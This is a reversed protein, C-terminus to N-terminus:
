FYHSLFFKRLLIKCAYAVGLVLMRTAFALGIARYPGIGSRFRLFLASFSIELPIFFFGIYPFQWLQFSNWPLLGWISAPLRLHKPVKMLSLFGWFSFFSVGISLTLQTIKVWALGTDYFDFFLWSAVSGLLIILGLAIAEWKQIPKRSVKM